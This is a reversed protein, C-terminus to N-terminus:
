KTAIDTICHWRQFSFKMPLTNLQRFEDVLKRFTDYIEIEKNHLSDAPCSFEGGVGCIM